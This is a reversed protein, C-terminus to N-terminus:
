IIYDIINISLKLPSVMSTPSEEMGRAWDSINVHTFAQGPGWPRTTYM